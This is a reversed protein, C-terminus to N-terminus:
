ISLTIMFTLNRNKIKELIIENLLTRGTKLFTLEQKFQVFILFFDFLLNSSEYVM